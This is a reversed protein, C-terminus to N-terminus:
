MPCVGCEKWRWGSKLWERFHSSKGGGEDAQGGGGGLHGAHGVAGLHGHHVHPLGVVVLEELGQGEEGRQGGHVNGLLDLVDNALAPSGAELEGVGGAGHGRVVAGGANHGGRGAAVVVVAVPGHPLQGHEAASVGVLDQHLHLLASGGEGAAVHAHGAEVGVLLDLLHGEDHVAREAVLLDGGHLAGDLREVDATSHM